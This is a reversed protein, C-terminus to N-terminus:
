NLDTYRYFRCYRRAIFLNRPFCVQSGNQGVDGDKGKMMVMM